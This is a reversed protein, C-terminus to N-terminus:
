KEEKIINYYGEKIKNLGEILKELGKMSLGAGVGDVELYFPLKNSAKLDKKRKYNFSVGIIFLDETSITTEYKSLEKHEEECKLAEGINDYTEGCVECRYIVEM